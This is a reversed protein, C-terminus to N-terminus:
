LCRSASAINWTQNVPSQFAELLFGETSVFISGTESRGFVTWEADQHRESSLVWVQKSFIGVQTAGADM